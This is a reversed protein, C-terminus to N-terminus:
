NKVIIDCRKSRKLEIEKIIYPEIDKVKIHILELRTSNNIVKVNKIKLSSM